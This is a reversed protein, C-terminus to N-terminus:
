SMLRLLRNINLDATKNEKKKEKKRKKEKEKKKAVKSQRESGALDVMHLKGTKEYVHGVQCVAHATDAAILLTM